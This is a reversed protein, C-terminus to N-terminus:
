RAVTLTRTQADGSVQLRLVCVGSALGRVYLSQKHRGADAPAEVSRVRRGMVDYLELRAAEGSASEPVAYRVTARRRARNPATGLLHLRAPRRRAGTITESYYTRGDTHVQKLRYLLTDAASPFDADAFRYPQAESTTGAGEVRGGNLPVPSLPM